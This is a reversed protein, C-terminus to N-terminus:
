FLSHVHNGAVSSGCHAVMDMEFYGPPPDNWGEYTRVAISKRRATNLGTRGRGQRAQLKSM